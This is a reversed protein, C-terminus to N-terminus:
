RAVGSARGHSITGITARISFQSASQGALRTVPAVFVPDRLLPSASLTRILGAPETSQGSVLLQGQRLSLDSLFTDDPLLDTLTALVQMPDGLRTRAGRILQEGAQREEILRRLQSAELAPDRLSAIRAESSALMHGQRILGTVIVTLFAAIALAPLALRPDKLFSFRSRWGPLAIRIDSSEEEIRDPPCGASALQLIFPDVHTRPVIWLGLGIQGLAADRHLVSHTWFLAEAPFPTLRDMEFQLVATLDHEAAVPLTVKRFMIRGPPLVLACFPEPSWKGLERRVREALGTGDGADERLHVIRTGRHLTCILGGPTPSIRIVPRSPWVTVGAFREPILEGLRRGWWHLFKGTM